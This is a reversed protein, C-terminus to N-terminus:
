RSGSWVGPIVDLVAATSSPSLREMETADVTNIAFSADRKRIGVGGPTGTVVVADMLLVDEALAFDATVTANASIAIEKETSQYGMFTVVLTYQGPPVKNIVYKGDFATAAGLSTGKILINAGPLGNGDENTVVGSVTGTIQSFAPLAILLVSIAVILSTFLKTAHFNRKM